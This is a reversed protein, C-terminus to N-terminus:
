VRNIGENFLREQTRMVNAEMEPDDNNMASTLMNDVATGLNTFTDPELPTFTRQGQSSSPDIISDVAELLQNALDTNDSLDSNTSLDESVQRMVEGIQRTEESTMGDKELVAKTIMDYVAIRSAVDEDTIDAVLLTDSLTVIDSIRVDEGNNIRQQIDSLYIESAEEIISTTNGRLVTAEKTTTHTRGLWDRCRGFVTVM